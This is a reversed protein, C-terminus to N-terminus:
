LEGALCAPPAPLGHSAPPYHFAAASYLRSGRQDGPRNAPPQGGREAVSVPRGGLGGARCAQLAPLAWARGRAVLPPLGSWGTPV